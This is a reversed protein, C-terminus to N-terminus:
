LRRSGLRLDGLSGSDRCLDDSPKPSFDKGPKERRNFMVGSSKLVFVEMAIVLKRVRESKHDDDIVTKETEQVKRKMLIM